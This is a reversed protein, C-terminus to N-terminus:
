GRDKLDTQQSEAVPLGASNRRLLIGVNLGCDVPKDAANMRPCSTTELHIRIGNCEEHPARSLPFPFVLHVFDKRSKEGSSKRRCYKCRSSIGTAAHPFG